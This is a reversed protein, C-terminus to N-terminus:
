TKKKRKRKTGELGVPDQNKGWPCCRHKRKRWVQLFSRGCDNCRNPKQDEHVNTNSDHNSRRHFRRERGQTKTQNEPDRRRRTSWHTQIHLRLSDPTEFQEGCLGCVQEAEQLHTKVHRFLCRRVKFTRSCVRCSLLGAPRRSTKPKLRNLAPRPDACENSYDDSDETESSLVLQVDQDPDASGPEVQATGADSLDVEEGPRVVRSSNYTFEIIEAEDLDQLQEEEQEKVHSPWLDAQDQDQQEPHVEEKSGMLQQTFADASPVAMLPKHLACLLAHQRSIVEQCLAAEQEYKVITKEFAALIEEVALNLRQSVFVRLKQVRSM